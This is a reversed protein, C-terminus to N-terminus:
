DKPYRLLGRIVLVWPVAWVPKTRGRAPPPGVYIDLEQAHLAAQEAALVKDAQLGSYFSHPFVM